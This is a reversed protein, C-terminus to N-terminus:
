SDSILVEYKLSSKGNQPQNMKLTETTEVSQKSCSRSRLLGLGLGLNRPGLRSQSRCFSTELGTELPSWTELGGDSIYLSLLVTMFWSTIYRELFNPLDTNDWGYRCTIM